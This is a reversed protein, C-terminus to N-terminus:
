PPLHRPLLRAGRGCRFRDEWAFFKLLRVGTVVETVLRLRKDTFALTARTQRGVYGAMAGQTSHHFSPLTLLLRPTDWRRMQGPWLPRAPAQLPLLRPMCPQRRRVQLPLFLLMVGLAVFAPPGLQGYLLAMALAIQIVSAWSYNVFQWALNVANTDTSVLNQLPPPRLRLLPLPSTAPSCRAGLNGGWAQIRGSGGAAIRQGASLRLAKRYVAFGVAQKSQLGARIFAQYSHHLSLTQLVAATFTAIVWRRSPALLPVASHSATKALLRCLGMRRGPIITHRVYWYGLELGGVRTDTGGRSRVAVFNVIGQLSIPGVLACLDGIEKAISGFTANKAQLAALCVWFHLSSSRGHPKRAFRQMLEHALVASQDVAALAGLDAHELPRQRGLRIVPNLWSWTLYSLPNARFEDAISPRPTVPVPAFM